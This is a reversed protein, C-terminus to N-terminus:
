FISAFDSGEWGLRLMQDVMKVSLLPNSYLILQGPALDASTSCLLNTNDASLALATVDTGEPLKFRCLAKLSFLDLLSVASGREKQSGGEDTSRWDPLAGREGAAAGGGEGEVEGGERREGEGERSEKGLTLGEGGEGAREGEDRQGRGAEGKEGELEGGGEGKEGGGDRRRAEDEKFSGAKGLGVKEGAIVAAREREKQREKERVHRWRSCDTGVAVFLGNSSVQVSSVDGDEESIRVGAVAAGNITFARLARQRREWVVVVGEPSIALLDAPGVGPLQRLFRGKMLSHLLVGRSRSSSAVLDLDSSVACCLITDLHGRLVQVPGEMRRWKRPAELGGAGGMGGAASLLLAAESMGGGAGREPYDAGGVAMSGAREESASVAAAAAALAPDHPGTPAASSRRAVRGGAGTGAAVLGATVGAAPSSPFPASAQNVRWLLVVGDTAGTALTAGDPSLALCTVPGGHVAATELVRTSDVSVLKVSFDAQGGTFLFKGDPSIAIIEKGGGSGGEGGRRGRRSSNDHAKDGSCPARRPASLPIDRQQQGQQGAGGGHAHASHCHCAPANLDVTVIADSTAVIRSAPVNLTDPHPLVYPLIEDPKRFVTHLHLAYDLPIRPPHPTTLLQSPTQGFYSIQDQMGRRVVPNTISDIDVAGEYTVYFFVNHAALAEKGKQKYGFILDIWHHLNSSVYESELAARQKRVFDAASAAWPPLKVDGIVEGKQTSGLHLGNINTFMEPLCFWEPILEKGHRVLEKVDSMDSTVGRWTAAVDLFLRDPHDFQGGQLALALSTYPEVRLLYHAVIGASSYHSGYHFKPIIPDAFSHYREVFKELREADLAGVPKSLDRFTAPNTLDLEKSTYDQIVWPFVPYQTVDNFTRGALTNLQMLYDFNTIERRIWRETLQLRELMKEPRLTPSFHHQLHPPNAHEIARHVRLREEPGRAGSSDGGKADSDAASATQGSEADKAGLTDDAGAAQKVGGEVLEHEVAGGGVAGGEAARVGEGGGEAAGRAGEIEEGEGGEGEGRDREVEGDQGEEDARTQVPADFDKVPAPLCGGLLGSADEVIAGGVIAGGVIAGGVGEVDVDGAGSGEAVGEKAEVKGEGDVGVGESGAGGGVAVGEGEGDKERKKGEVGMDGGEQLGVAGAVVGKDVGDAGDADGQSRARKAAPPPDDSPPRFDAALGHCDSGRYNRVMRRRMRASSEVRDLKWFVRRQTLAHYSGPLGVLLGSELLQCILSRWMRMGATHARAMQTEIKVRRLRQARILGRLGDLHQQLGGLTPGLVTGSGNVREGSGAAAAGGERGGVEHPAADTSFARDDDRLFPNHREFDVEDAAADTALARDDDRLFPNHGEFDTLHPIFAFASRWKRLLAALPPQVVAILSPRLIARSPAIAHIAETHLVASAALACQKRADLSATTLLPLVARWLLSSLVGPSIGEVEGREWAVVGGGAGDVGGEKGRPAAREGEQEEDVVHSLERAAVGVLRIVTLLTQDDELLLQSARNLVGGASGGGLMNAIGGVVALVGEATGAGGKEGQKEGGQGVEGEELLMSRLMAVAKVVLPLDLWRGTVPDIEVAAAWAVRGGGWGPAGKGEAPVAVGYWLKSRHGWSLPLEHSISGYAPLACRVADFPEASTSATIRELMPATLQGANDAMLALMELTLLDTPSRRRSSLGASLLPNSLQAALPMLGAAAAAAATATMGPLVSGGGAGGGASAGAGTPSDPDPVEQWAAPRSGPLTDDADFAVTPLALPSRAAAHFRLFDELLMLLAVANELLWASTPSTLLPDPARPHPSTPTPSIPIDIPLPSALAAAEAAAAAAAAATAEVQAQKATTHPHALCPTPSSAPALHSPSSFSPNCRQSLLFLHPLISHSTIRVQLCLQAATFDMVGHLLRRKVTAMGEERKVREPGISSGGILAMWELCHFTAELEKWGDKFTMCHELVTGLFAFIMENVDVREQQEETLGGGSSGGSGGVAGGSGEGDGGAGAEEVRGEGGEGGGTKGSAAAAATPAEKGEGAAHQAGAQTSSISCAGAPLRQLASSCCLHSPATCHSRCTSSPFPFIPPLFSPFALSPRHLQAPTAYGCTCSRLLPMDVHAASCSYCIWMHLQAPTAYGCTCSLLLLMDVHALELHSSVHVELNDLLVELLWEPWEPLCSLQWRNSGSLSVLLLVDQPHTPTRHLSCLQTPHAYTSPTHRAYNSPTRHADYCCRPSSSNLRNLLLPMAAVVSTLLLIPLCLSCIDNSYPFSLSHRTSPSLMPPCPSLMPPCPSLLLTAQLIALQTRPAASPLARLPALLLQLQSEALVTDGALVRRGAAAAESGAESASANTTSADAVNAGSSAPAAQASTCSQLSVPPPSHMCHSICPLISPPVCSPLYSVGCTVHTHSVESRLVATMIAHYVAPTLLRDPARQLARQAGYVAWAGVNNSNREGVGRDAVVSGLGAGAGGPVLGLVAPSSLRIYGREALLGLISVVAIFIGDPGDTLPFDHSKPALLSQEGYSASALRRGSRRGTASLSLAAAAVMVDGSLGHSGKAGAARSSALPQRIPVSPAVTVSNGAPGPALISMPSAQFLGRQQLRRMIEGAVDLGTRPEPIREEREEKAEGAAEGDTGGARTEKAAEEGSSGGAAKQGDAANAEAEPRHARSGFPDFLVQWSSPTAAAPTAPNPTPTKPTLAHSTTSNSSGAPVEVKLEASPGKGGSGSEDAAEAETSAAAAVGAAESASRAAEKDSSDRADVAAGHARQGTTGARGQVSITGEKAVGGDKGKVGGVTVGGDAKEEGVVEKVRGAEAKCPVPPFLLPCADGWHSERLLLALLMHAGGAALFQVSFGAARAANPHSLLRYVLLLVRVVQNPHPCDLLFAVLTRMDAGMATANSTALLLELVGMVADVLANVEGMRAHQRLVMEREEQERREGGVEAGGGAEEAGPSKIAAPTASRSSSPGLPLSIAELHVWYCRRCGDLLVPLAGAARLTHQERVAVAALSTLVQQQVPLPCAAWLPLHLLLHLFLHPKLPDGFRPAMALAATAAALQKDYPPEREPEPEDLSCLAAGHQEAVMLALMAPAGGKIEERNMGHRMARGVVGLVRPLLRAAAVAAPPDACLALPLPLFSDPHVAHVALTLLALPGGQGAQWIAEPVRHRAAVHVHGLVEAPRRHVGAASAPSADPCFRGLLLRPHYLLHLRPALESDLSYADDAALMLQDSSLLAPVGAGAGFCPLHDGGRAALRMMREAGIPEKFIYVPGLEAFLPCQKRRRQLGAMAAPPNTGICLFGLPRSIRPLDLPLSEVLRGDVYLRMHCEAKGLLSPKFVHELGIFYWRQAQFAHSFHFTSKSGRHTSSEVILYERHFYAEVGESEATLFSYLRPMHMLGEGALASAAAAASVASTRGVKATAAAAIAAAMAAAGVASSETDYFSEVYIWTAFAYGNGFPWKSDGPGLLGSSEGDLEFTYAPARVEEGEMAGQLVDLLAGAKERRVWEGGGASGRVGKEGGGGGGAMGAAGTATSAISAPPTTAPPPSASLAVVSGMWQRVEGVSVSHSALSQLAALVPGADWAAEAAGYLAAGGEGEGAGERADAGEGASSVIPEVPLPAEDLLAAGPPLSGNARVGGLLIIRLSALLSSTLRAAACMARNRTCSSLATALVRAVRTRPSRGSGVVAGAASGAGTGLGAAGAAADAPARAQTKVSEEGDRSEAAERAAGDSAAGSGTVGPPRCDRCPLWPLLAAALVAAEASMMIVPGPGPAKGNRRREAGRNDGSGEEEEAVEDGEYRCGMIALVTEVVLAAAADREEAGVAGADSGGDAGKGVGENENTGAEDKGGASQAEGDGGGVARIGELRCMGAVLRQLQLVGKGGRQREMGGDRGDGGKAGRAVEQLAHPAAQPNMREHYIRLILAATEEIPRGTVDLVPWLPHLAFLDEAADLEGRVHEASGRGAGRHPQLVALRHYRARRISALTPAAITLAFIRRQDVKDAQLLEAPPAVGPVLPINAVKYGMHALHMSLPTKGTRSVGVLIIDAQGLNRPLAGDDQRITFEVAEIRRFYEEGLEGNHKSGAGQGAGGAHVGMHEGVAALLPGLVDVAAVHLAAAAHAATHRLAADALTSSHPHHRPSVGRRDGSTHPSLPPLKDGGGTGGEGGVHSYLRTLVSCRGGALGCDLLGVAAEVARDAAWATGDSVVFIEKGGGGAGSGDGDARGAAVAEAAHALSAAAMPVAGAGAQPERRDQAVAGSGDGEGTLGPARARSSGWFVSSPSPSPSATTPTTPSLLALLGSDAENMSSQRNMADDGCTSASASDGSDGSGNSGDTVMHTRRAM